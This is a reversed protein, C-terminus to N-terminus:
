EVNLPEEFLKDMQKKLATIKGRSESLSDLCNKAVALGQEFLTIGEEIGVDEKELKSVLKELENIKDELM